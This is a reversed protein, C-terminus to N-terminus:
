FRFTYRGSFGRGPADMGWFVGRYNRDTINELDLLLQHREQWSVGGRLGITVYGPVKTFLPAANVGVGLVRDQVQALTEGTILLIDDANGFTGNPGPGILGRVTAGRRFFNQISSRTREAGTRRDAMDLSSLREQRTAGHLYSEIWFRHAAPAYRLKVYGDPAPIGGEINPISGSRRDHARLYTWTTGMSWDRSVKWNMRHEFGRIRADDFNARVLVPSTSAAVFVVGNANQATIPTGGLMTGVAGAPLILAQKAIVDNLDNIFFNFDTDFRSVRYHLGFEYNLSTEPSLQKVSRGSTVANSDARTGVTASLGALDPAAVEFGSGTLGLTGLDTILPARYGRGVRATFSFGKGPMAVIGVRYTLGHVTLTDDPWFRVGNVLPSDSARAKYDAGSYRLNGTLRLRNPVVDVINQVFLGGNIYRVNDPVRGRRLATTQTAPDFFHSPADVGERYIDGGFSFNNRSFQKGAYVNVGHANTREYEHNIAALPNGNGGQNVREERQSNFSYGLTFSDFAGWKLRDFRLYFFDSM